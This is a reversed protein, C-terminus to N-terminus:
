MGAPLAISAIAPNVTSFSADARSQCRAPVWHVGPFFKSPLMGMPGSTTVGSSASTVSTARLVTSLPWTMCCARVLWISTSTGLATSDVKGISVAIRDAATNNAGVQFSAASGTPAAGTVGAANFGMHAAADGTVDLKDVTTSAGNRNFSVSAKGTLADYKRPGSFDFGEAAM